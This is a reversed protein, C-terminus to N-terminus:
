GILSIIRDLDDEDSYHVSITGGSKRGPRISVRAGLKRELDVRIKNLFIGDPHNSLKKKKRGSSKKDGVAEVDRVNLGTELILARQRLREEDTDLAMLAKAHGMTLRGDALDNKIIEPLNLIRLYNAVSSRKKGVRKALEEQTLAYEKLLRHYATAEEIPNLNQRQINEILALELADSDRIVKVIAPIEKLGLSKVARWRREGAILEYGNRKRAVIIPQIVGKGKISEALDQLSKEDFVVRPQFRNQVIENVPVNVISDTSPKEKKDPLLAALGRGLAQRKM